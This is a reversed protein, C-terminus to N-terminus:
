SSFMPNFAGNKASARRLDMKPRYGVTTSMVRRFNLATSMYMIFLRMDTSLGYGLSPPMALDYLRSSRSAHLRNFFEIKAGYRTGRLSRSFALRDFNDSGKQRVM